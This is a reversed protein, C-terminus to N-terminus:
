LLFLELQCATYAVFVTNRYFDRGTRYDPEVAVEQMLAHVVVAQPEAPAVDGM